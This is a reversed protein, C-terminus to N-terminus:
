RLEQKLIWEELKIKDEESLLKIEQELRFVDALSKIKSKIYDLNRTKRIEQRFEQVGLALEQVAGTHSKMNADFVMQNKQIGSMIRSQEILSTTIFEQKDAMESMKPPDKDLIDSVFNSYRKNDEVAYNKHGTELGFPESLDVWARLRGQILVRLMNGSKKCRKAIEDRLKVYHQSRISFQPIGDKFFRFDFREEIFRYIELTDELAQIFCEYSDRGFYEKQNIIVISNSFTQVLFCDKALTQYPNNGWKTPRFHFEKLKMLKNERKEWWTPKDILKLIFSFKHAEITDSSLLKALKLSLAQNKAFKWIPYINSILGAKELKQLHNYITRETLLTLKQMTRVRLGEPNDRLIKLIKIDKLKLNVTSKGTKLKGNKRNIISESRKQKKAEM